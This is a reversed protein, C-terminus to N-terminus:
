NNNKEGDTYVSISNRMYREGTLIHALFSKPVENKKNILKICKDDFFCM